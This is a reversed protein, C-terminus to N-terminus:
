CMWKQKEQKEAMTENLYTKTKKFKKSNKFNKLKETFM